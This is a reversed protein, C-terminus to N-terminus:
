VDAGDIAAVEIESKERNAHEHLMALSLPVPDDKDVRFVKWGLWSRTAKKAPKVV